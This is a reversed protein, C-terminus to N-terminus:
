IDYVVVDSFLMDSLILLCHMVYEEGGRCRRKVRDVLIQNYEFDERFCMSDTKHVLVTIAINILQDETCIKVKFM